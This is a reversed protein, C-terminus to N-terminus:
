PILRELRKIQVDGDLWTKYHEFVRKTYAQAHHFNFAAEDRFIEYLYLISKSEGYDIHLSFTECGEEALTQPMIDLIAKKAVALFEPKVPITAFAYYRTDAM